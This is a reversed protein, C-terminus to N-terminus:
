GNVKKDVYNLIDGVTKIQAADEDDIKLSFQKEMEMILEVQDLSDLGLDETLTNSEAVSAGEADYKNVLVDKIKEFIEPKNMIMM